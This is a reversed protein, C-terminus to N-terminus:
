VVNEWENQDVGVCLLFLEIAVGVTKHINEM